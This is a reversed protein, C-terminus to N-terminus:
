LRVSSTWRALLAEDGFVQLRDAPVRNWLFLYLDSAPGRAAVDGKAHAREVQPRGPTLTLLWEGAADTAHLHLTEGDGPLADPRREPLLVDLMEDVGDVALEADIPAPDGHALQADWRHTATELAMRRPWFLPPQAGVWTPVTAGADAPPSGELAAVLVDLGARTWDLVADGAPPREVTVHEESPGGSGAAVWGATWRWVRGVHGVLREVDWGPCSPVPAALGGGAADLLAAADSRLSSLYSAREM